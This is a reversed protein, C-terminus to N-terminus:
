FKFHIYSNCYENSNIKEERECCYEGDYYKCSACERETQIVQKILLIDEQMSKIVVEDCM